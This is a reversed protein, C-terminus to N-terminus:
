FNSLSLLVKHGKSRNNLIKEHKMNKSAIADRYKVSDTGGDRMM